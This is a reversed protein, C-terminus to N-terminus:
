LVESLDGEEYMEVEEIENVFFTDLLRVAEEYILTDDHMQCREIAAIGDNAELVPFYPNSTLNAEARLKEGVSLILFTSSLCLRVTTIRPSALFDLFPTIVGLQVLTQVQEQTGCEVGRALAMIAACCSDSTPLTEDEDSLCKLKCQNNLDTKNLLSILSTFLGGDLLSQLHTAPGGALKWLGLCALVRLTPLGTECRDTEFRCETRGTATVCTECLPQTLSTISSCNLSGQPLLVCFPVKTHSHLLTTLRPLCGATLARDRQVDCGDLIFVLAVLATSRLELVPHTLFSVLQSTIEGKPDILEIRETLNLSPLSWEDGKEAQISMTRIPLSSIPSHSILPPVSTLPVSALAVSALPVPSHQDTSEIACSTTYSSETSDTHIPPSPSSASHILNPSSDNSVNSSHPPNLAPTSSPSHPFYPSHSHQPPQTLHSLRPSSQTLHTDRPSHHNSHPSCVSDDENHPITLLHAIACCVNVLVQPDEDKVLLDQIVGCVERCQSLSLGSIRLPGMFNDQVCLWALAKTLSRQVGGGDDCLEVSESEENSIHSAADCLQSLEDDDWGVSEDTLCRFPPRHEGARPTHRSLCESVERVSLLLAEMAGCRILEPRLTPSVPSETARCRIRFDPSLLMGTLENATYEESTNADEEKAGRKRWCWVGIGTCVLLGAGVFVLRASAKVVVKM